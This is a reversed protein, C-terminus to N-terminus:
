RRSLRAVGRVFDLSPRHAVQAVQEPVCSVECGVEVLRQGVTRNMRLPEGVPEAFQSRLDQVVDLQILHEDPERGVVFRRVQQL